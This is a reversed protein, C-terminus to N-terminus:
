LIEAFRHKCRNFVFLGFALIVATKATLMGIRGPAPWEGDYLVQQYLTLLEAVPNLFYIGQLHEPVMSAPYFVPSLYFIASMLLPLAHQVDRYFVALTALPLQLGLALLFQLLLLLPLAAFSVPVGHHLWLALLGIVLLLEVLFEALRSLASSVLLAEHPFAISRMVQSHEDLTYTAAYMTASVYNWAFYGSILFAWYDAIQIRVVLGFVLALVLVMVLPHVLTWVFGLLSRQYKVKVNRVVLGWILNRHSWLSSSRAL